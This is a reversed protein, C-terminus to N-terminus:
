FGIFNIEFRFIQKFRYRSPAKWVQYTKIMQNPLDFWVYEIYKHVFVLLLVTRQLKHRETKEM